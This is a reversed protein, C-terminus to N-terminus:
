FQGAGVHKKIELPRPHWEHVYKNISILETRKDMSCKENCRTLVGNPFKKNEPFIIQKLM